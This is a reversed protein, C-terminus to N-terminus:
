LANYRVWEKKRVQRNSAVLVFSFLIAGGYEKDSTKGKKSETDAAVQDGGHRLYDISCFFDDFFPLQVSWFSSSSSLHLRLNKEKNRVCPSLYFSSFRCLSLSLSLSWNEKRRTSTILLLVPGAFFFASVRSLFASVCNLRWKRGNRAQGAFFLLLFGLYFFLLFAILEDNEDM